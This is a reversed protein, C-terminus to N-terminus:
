GALQTVAQDSVTSSVGRNEVTILIAPPDADSGIALAKAWLHQAIGESETKRVAYGALRVPYDPTIDIIAVGVPRMQEKGTAALAFMAVCIASLFKFRALRQPM